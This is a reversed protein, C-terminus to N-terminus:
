MGQAIIVRHDAAKKRHPPAAQYAPSQYWALADEVIPFELLIVGEPPQGELPTVAGELVRPTLKWGGGV